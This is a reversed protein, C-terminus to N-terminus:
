TNKKTIFYALIWGLSSFFQDGISNKLTDAESKGGPWFTIKRILNMGLETNEAYEFIFHLIFWSTFSINWYYAIIGCAYHLLSFQDIFYIGM